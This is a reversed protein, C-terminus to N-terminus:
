KTKTDIIARKEKIEDRMKATEIKKKNLLQLKEGMLRSLNSNSDLTTKLRGKYDVLKTNQDRSM